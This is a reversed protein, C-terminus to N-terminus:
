PAAKFGLSAFYLNKFFQIHFSFYAKQMDLILQILLSNYSLVEKVTSHYTSLIPCAGEEKLKRKHLEAKYMDDITKDYHARGLM